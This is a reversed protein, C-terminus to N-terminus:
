KKNENNKIAKSFSSGAADTNGVENDHLNHKNKKCKIERERPSKQKNEERSLM